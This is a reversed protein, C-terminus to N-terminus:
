KIASIKVEDGKMIVHSYYYYYYTLMIIIIIILNVKKNNIHQCLLWFGTVCVNGPVYLCNLM